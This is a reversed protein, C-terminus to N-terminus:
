RWPKDRYERDRNWMRKESKARREEERREAARRNLAEQLKVHLAECYSDLVVSGCIGTPLSLLGAHRADLQMSLAGERADCVRRNRENTGPAGICPHM